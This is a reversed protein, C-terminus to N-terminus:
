EIAERQELVGQEYRKLGLGACSGYTEKVFQHWDSTDKAQEKDDDTLSQITVLVDKDAEARDVPVRITLVGDPGIHSHLQIIDM